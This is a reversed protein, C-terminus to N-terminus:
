AGFAGFAATEGILAELSTIRNVAGRFAAAGPAGRFYWGAHKRMELVAMHEGKDEATLRAHRIFMQTKEQRTPAEFVAGSYAARAEAFIWPNGLAGRAIMVRDCGTQRIMRVADQGSYVDGNGIVPIRVAAKVAAIVDWDAKGSYYQERTRGHVCVADAGAAEITRAMEAANVSAADWGMRIKATVAKGGAARKMAEIIRGARDPDKLLASGEGTRVVKPVPCGMNVDILVGARDPGSLIRAAHAMIEPESGFIQYGVPGEAPDIELLRKTKQDGYWLAKASVMETYALAAGCEGCLRRFSKDTVGALPALVFLTGGDTGGDIDRGEM